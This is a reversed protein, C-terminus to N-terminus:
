AAVKQQHSSPAKRLVGVKAMKWAGDCLLTELSGALETFMVDDHSAEFALTGDADPKMLKVYYADAGIDLGIIVHGTFKGTECDFHFEPNGAALPDSDYDPDVLTINSANFDVLMNSIVRVGDTCKGKSLLELMDKMYQSKPPPTPLDSVFNGIHYLRSVIGNECTTQPDRFCRGNFHRRQYTTIRVMSGLELPAPLITPDVVAFANRATKLVFYEDDCQIVKGEVPPRDSSLGLMNTGPRNCIVGTKFERANSPIFSRVNTKVWAKGAEENFQTM